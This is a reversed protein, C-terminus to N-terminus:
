AAESKPTSRSAEFLAIFFLDALNRATEPMLGEITGVFPSGQFMARGPDTKALRQFTAFLWRGLTPANEGRLGGDGRGNTSICDWELRAYKTGVSVFLNPLDDQKCERFWANIRATDRKPIERWCPNPLDPDRVILRLPDEEAKYGFSEIREAWRGLDLAVPDPTAAKMRALLAAQTNNGLAAALGESLHSSKIDPCVSRLERKVFALNAPTLRLVAM